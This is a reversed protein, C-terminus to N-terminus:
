KESQQQWKFSVCIMYRIKCEAEEETAGTVNGKLLKRRIMFLFHLTDSPIFKLFPLMNQDREQKVKLDGM